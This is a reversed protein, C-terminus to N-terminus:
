VNCRLNYRILICLEHYVDHGMYSNEKNFDKEDYFGESFICYINVRM